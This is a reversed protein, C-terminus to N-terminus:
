LINVHDCDHQLWEPIEGIPYIVIVMGNPSIESVGQYNMSHFSNHARALIKNHELAVTWVIDRWLYVYQSNIYGEAVIDLGPDDLETTLQLLCMPGDNTKIAQAVIVGYYKPNLKLINDRLFLEYKQAEEGEAFQYRQRTYNSMNSWYTRVCMM